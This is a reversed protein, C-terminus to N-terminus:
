ITHKKVFAKFIISLFVSYFIFVFVMQVGPDLAEIGAGMFISFVGLCLLKFSDISIVKLTKIDHGRLVAASIMGGALGACVYGTIEPIGHPLFRITEGPIHWFFDSLKGGVYVGLISANWALIFIAGAGFIFSFIFSFIMVQINNFFVRNFFTYQHAKTAAGTMGHIQNIKSMQVQFFNEPLLFAWVAFSMTIGFFYFLLIMIDKGHREWFMNNHRRIYKEELM